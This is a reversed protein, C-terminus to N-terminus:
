KRNPKVTLVHCSARRVIKETVSGLLMYEIGTKGITGMVILDVKKEKAAKLIEDQATGKRLILQAGKMPFRKAAKRLEAASHELMRHELQLQSLGMKVALVPVDAVVHLLYVRSKFKKAIAAAPAFAVYSSRSFDTPVLIRSYTAM